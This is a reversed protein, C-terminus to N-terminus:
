WICLHILKRRIWKLVWFTCRDCITRKQNAENPCHKNSYVTKKKERIRFYVRWWRNFHKNMMSLSVRKLFAYKTCLAFYWRVLLFTHAITHKLAHTPTHHWYFNWRFETHASTNFFAISLFLAAAAVAVFGNIKLAIVTAHDSWFIVACNFKLSDFHMKRTSKWFAFFCLVFQVLYASFGNPNEIFLVEDMRHFLFWITDIFKSQPSFIRNLGIGRM